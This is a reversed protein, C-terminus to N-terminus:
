SSPECDPIARNETLPAPSKLARIAKSIHGRCDCCEAWTQCEHESALEAARELAADEAARLADLVPCLRAAVDDQSDFDNWRHGFLKKLLDSAMSGQEEPTM